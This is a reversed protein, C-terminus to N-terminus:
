FSYTLTKIAEANGAKDTSFFKITTTSSITMPATYVSSSTTPTTGNLTYYTKSCGSGGDSCNLTVTQSSSFRGGSPLASTIPPVQDFQCVSGNYTGGYPCTYGALPQQSLWMTPNSDAAWLVNTLGDLTLGGSLGVSGPFPSSSVFGALLPSQNSTLPNTSECISECDEDHPGCSTCFPYNYYYYAPASGSFSANSLYGYVWDGTQLSLMGSGYVLYVPISYNVHTAQYQYEKPNSEKKILNGLKDYTYVIYNSSDYWVMQLRDLHDYVYSSTGAYVTQNAVAAYITVTLITLIIKVERGRSM